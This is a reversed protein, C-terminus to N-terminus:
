FKTGFAYVASATLTTRGKKLVGSADNFFAVDSFDRRLELRAILGGAAKAEATLTFEKPKQSTGTMFADRDDLYEFRPTLAFGPTVQLRAYLCLGQWSVDRGAVKDAGYDYNAVLSLKPTAVFTVTSDFLFRKDADDDKQEPGYMLGGVVTLRASPKLTAQAGFTKGHNNDKSNNWGNVAFGFLSVKDNVPLTARLGVHYYPIALAFLLSRSYNWDDKSEIYENGHPTV